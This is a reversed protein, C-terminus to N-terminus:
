KNMREKKAAQRRRTPAGSPGASAEQSSREGKGGEGKKARKGRWDVRLFDEDLADFLSPQGARVNTGLKIVRADDNIQASEFKYAADQNAATTVYTHTEIEDKHQKLIPDFFAPKM